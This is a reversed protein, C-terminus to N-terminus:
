KAKRFNIRDVSDLMLMPIGELNIAMFNKDYRRGNNSTIRRSPDTIEIAHLIKHGEYFELVAYNRQDVVKLDYCFELHYARYALHNIVEEDDKNIKRIEDTVARLTIGQTSVVLPADNVTIKFETPIAGLSEFITQATASVTLISSLLLYLCTRRMM